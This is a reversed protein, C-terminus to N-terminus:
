TGIHFLCTTDQPASKVLTIKTKSDRHIFTESLFWVVFRSQISNAIALFKLAPGTNCEFPSHMETQTQPVITQNSLLNDPSSFM